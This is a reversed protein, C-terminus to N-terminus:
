RGGVCRRAVKRAACFARHLAVRQPRALSWSPKGIKRGYLAPECRRTTGQRSSGDSPGVFELIPPALLTGAGHEPLWSTLAVLAIESQDAGESPVGTSLLPEAVVEPHDGV